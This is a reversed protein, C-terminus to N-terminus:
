SNNSIPGSILKTLAAVSLSAPFLSRLLGKLNAVWHRFAPNYSKFGIKFDSTTSPLLTTTSCSKFPFFSPPKLVLIM